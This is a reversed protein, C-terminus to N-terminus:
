ILSRSTLADTLITDHRLIEWARLVADPFDVRYLRARLAMGTPMMLCGLCSELVLSLYREVPWVGEGGGCFVL